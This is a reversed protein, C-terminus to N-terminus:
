DTFTREEEEEEEEEEEVGRGEETGGQQLYYCMHVAGEGWAGRSQKKIINGGGTGRGAKRM